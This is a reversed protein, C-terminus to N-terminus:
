FEYPSMQYLSSTPDVAAAGYVNWLSKDVQQYHLQPVQFHGATTTTTSHVGMTTNTNNSPYLPSFNLFPEPTVSPSCSMLDNDDMMLPLPTLIMKATLEPVLAALDLLVQQVADHNGKLVHVKEHSAQKDQSFDGCRIWKQHHFMGFFCHQPDLEIELQGEQVLRIQTISEMPVQIRFLHGEALVQWTMQKNIPDIFCKLDCLTDNNNENAEQFAFRSWSGIRLTHINLLPVINQQYSPQPEASTTSSSHKLPIGESMSRMEINSPEQIGKKEEEEEEDEIIVVKEPKSSSRPRGNNRRTQTPQQKLEEFREPTMMTRFTPQYRPPHHHSRTAQEMWRPLLISDQQQQQQQFGMAVLPHATNNTHHPFHINHPYNNVNGTTTVVTNLSNSLAELKRAKARRNQFWIQITRESVNLDHALQSRVSADPLPNVTFSNQLITLQSPKLHTRKRTPASPSATSTTSSLSTNNNRVHHSHKTIM